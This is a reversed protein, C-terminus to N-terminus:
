RNILGILGAVVMYYQGKIALVIVLVWCIALSLSVRLFKRMHYIWSNPKLVLAAVARCLICISLSALVRDSSSLSAM